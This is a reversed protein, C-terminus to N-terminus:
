RVTTLPPKAPYMSPHRLWVKGPALQLDLGVGTVGVTRVRARSHVTFM